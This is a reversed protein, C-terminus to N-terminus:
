EPLGVKDLAKFLTERKEKQVQNLNKTPSLM